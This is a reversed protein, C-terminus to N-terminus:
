RWSTDDLASLPCSYFLGEARYPQIKTSSLMYWNLKISILLLFYNHTIQVAFWVVCSIVSLFFHLWKWRLLQTVPPVLILGQIGLSQLINSDFQNEIDFWYSMFIKWNSPIGPRIKTGGTVWSKLDFNSGNKRESIADFNTSELYFMLVYLKSYITLLMLNKKVIDESLHIQFLPRVNKWVKIKFNLVM